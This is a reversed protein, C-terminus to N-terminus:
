DLDLWRGLARKQDTCRAFAAVVGNPNVLV